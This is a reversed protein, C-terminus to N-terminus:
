DEGLSSPRWTWTDVLVPASDKGLPDALGVCFGDIGSGDARVRLRLFHKFGPHDLATFAQTHEFGLATLLALYGGFVFVGVFVSIVLTALMLLTLSISVGLEALGRSVVLSGAIPLLATAFAAAFALPLVAKRRRVGGILAYIVGLVLTTAFPASLIFGLKEYFRAGFSIAPFFLMLLFLHPLFGSRGTGIKWPVQRLLRRCQPAEPWQTQYPLGGRALRAPHLFAGGGGATVHLMRSRELRQYHHVDGTLVFHERAEFDLQLSEVMATGTKSAYGFRYIPDPLLVWAAGPHERYEDGLFRRQRSDPTTLQRDVGYLQLSRTVPLVFFSANQVPTYGAFALAKPKEVKGGRVFQRAWEAYHELMAQSIGVVSARVDDDDSRLRFLRQFGDLGDYWDHNGPIGILVRPKDDKPISDLVQNWPAVVRNTIERATAVPYATDGGFLLIEGRPAVLHEGPRDPDPLEYEAFLLRAMARSVSVDDGTDAIFDIWVDRQLADLLSSAKPDGGLVRAIRALLERPDDPTMWDRSDVDETAIATAIFHQLHGWFSTAGFWVVGRPRATGRTFSRRVDSGKPAPRVPRPREGVGDRSDDM